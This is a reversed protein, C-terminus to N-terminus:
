FWAKFGEDCSNKLKKKSTLTPLILPLTVSDKKCPEIDDLKTVFEIKKKEEKLQKKVNKLENQLKENKDKM